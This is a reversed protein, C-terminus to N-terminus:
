DQAAEFEEKFRHALSDMSFLSCVVVINTEEEQTSNLTAKELQTMVSRAYMRNYYELFWVYTPYTLEGNEERQELFERYYLTAELDATGQFFTHVFDTFSVDELEPASKSIYLHFSMRAIDWYTINALVRTIALKNEEFFWFKTQKQNLTEMKKVELWLDRHRYAPKDANYLQAAQPMNLELKLDVPEGKQLKEVNTTMDTFSKEPINFVLADPQVDHILDAAAADDYQIYDTPLLFINVKREIHTFKRIMAKREISDTTTEADDYNDSSDEKQSSFLRLQAGGWSPFRAARSRLLTRRCTTFM